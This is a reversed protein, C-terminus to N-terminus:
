AISFRLCPLQPKNMAKNRINIHCPQIAEEKFASETVDMTCYMYIPIHSWRKSSWEGFPLKTRCKVPAINKSTGIVNSIVEYNKNSSWKGWQYSASCYLPSGKGSLITHFSLTRWYSRLQQMDEHKSTCLLPLSKAFWTWVGISGISYLVLYYLASLAQILNHSLSFLLLPTSYSM